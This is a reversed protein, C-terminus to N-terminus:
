FFARACFSQIIITIFSEPRPPVALSSERCSDIAPGECVCIFFICSRQIFMQKLHPPKPLTPFTSLWKMMAPHDQTKGNLFVAEKAPIIEMGIDEPVAELTAKTPLCPDLIVDEVHGYRSRQCSHVLFREPVAETKRCSSIAIVEQDVHRSSDQTKVRFEVSKERVSVPKHLNM